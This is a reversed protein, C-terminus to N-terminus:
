VTRETNENVANWQRFVMQRLEDNEPMLCDRRGAKLRSDDVTWM